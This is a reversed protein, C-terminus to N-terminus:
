EGSQNVLPHGEALLKTIWHRERADLEDPDIGEDLVVFLPERGERALKEMWASYAANDKVGAYRLHQRERTRPNYTQGVYHYVHGWLPTGAAIEALAYVTGTLGHAIAYAKNAM